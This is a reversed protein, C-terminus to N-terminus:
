FQVFLTSNPELKHSGITTIQSDTLDQIRNASLPEPKQSQSTYVSSQM